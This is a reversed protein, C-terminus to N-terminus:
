SPGFANPNVWQVGTFTPMRSLATPSAVLRIALSIWAKAFRTTPNVEM